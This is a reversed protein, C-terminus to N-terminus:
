EPVAEGGLNPMTFLATVYGPLAFGSRLIDMAPKMVDAWGLTGFKEQLAGFGAVGWRWGGSASM